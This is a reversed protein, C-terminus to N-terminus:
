KIKYYCFTSNSVLVTQTCVNLTRVYWTIQVTGRPYYRSKRVYLKDYQTIQVPFDTRVIYWKTYNACSFGYASHITDHLENPFNQIYKINELTRIMYEWVGEYFISIGDVYSRESIILSRKILLNQFSIRLRNWLILPILRSPGLPFLSCLNIISWLLTSQARLSNPARQWKLPAETIRASLVSSISIKEAVPLCKNIKGMLNLFQLVERMAM